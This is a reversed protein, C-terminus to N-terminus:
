PQSQEGSWSGDYPSASLHEVGANQVSIGAIVRWRVLSHRDILAIPINVACIRHIQWAM